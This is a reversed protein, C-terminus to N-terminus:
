KKQEVKEKIANLTKYTSLASLITVVFIVSALLILYVMGCGMGALAEKEDKDLM